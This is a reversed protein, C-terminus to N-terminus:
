YRDHHHLWDPGAFDPRGAPTLDQYLLTGHLLDTGGDYTSYTHFIEDGDRFFVSVGGREGEDLTAQFDRNFDSNESSYWPITWGMRAKFPEIKATPARSIITLSTGLAHLHALNAINDVLFSCYKCGQEWSPDFMFHYVILQGRGDFLDLLRAKGGPGDFVYDKSVAVMPLQRRAARVREQAQAAETEQVLLEERAASWDAPSV